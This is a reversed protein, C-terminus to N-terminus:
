AGWSLEIEFRSIDVGHKTGCPRLASTRAAPLPAGCFGIVSRAYTGFITSMWFGLVAPIGDCSIKLRRSDEALVTLEAFDYYRQVIKPFRDVISKPTTLKLLARYIGNFDSKAQWETRVRLYDETTMKLARAEARILPAVPLADYWSGALFKQQIFALLAQDAIQAYVAGMGASSAQAFFSETGLFLIGKTHFPSTGPAYEM